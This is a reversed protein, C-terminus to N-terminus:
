GIMEPIDSADFGTCWDDLASETFEWYDAHQNFRRVIRHAQLDELVRRITTDGYAVLREKIMTVTAAGGTKEATEALVGIVKRRLTPISSTSTRALLRMSEDEPVGIMRLGCLLKQLTQFVRAPGESDYAVEIDRQKGERSVASRALTVFNALAGIQEEDRPTIYEEACSPTQLKAFYNQMAVYRTKKFRAARGNRSNYAAALIHGRRDIIPMRVYIFREGIKSLVTTHEEINQTCGAIVQVRGHWSRKWGGDVGRKRDFMGGCVQQLAGIAENRSDPKMCLITNFETLIFIGSGGEGIEMLLGGTADSSRDKKGTASLLASENFTTIHHTNPLGFLAELIMNKGSSPPGVLFYHVPDGELKSGAVAGMTVLLPLLDPMCLNDFTAIVESLASPYPM